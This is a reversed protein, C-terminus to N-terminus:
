SFSLGTIIWAIQAVQQDTLSIFNTEGKDSVLKMKVQGNEGGVIKNPLVKKIQDREYILDM